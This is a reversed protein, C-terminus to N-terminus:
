LQKIVKILHSVTKIMGLRVMDYIKSEIELRHRLQSSTATNWTNGEPKIRDKIAIAAKIYSESKDGELNLHDDICITMLKYYDGSEDRYELLRNTIFEKIVMAHFKSSLYEAAFILLSIHAFTGSNRGKGKIIYAKDLDFGWVESSAKIYEKTSDNDLFKNLSAIKKGEQLRLSNGINFLDTLSGYKTIHEIRLFDNFFRVTMVQNTKM